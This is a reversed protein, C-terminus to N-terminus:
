KLLKDVTQNFETKWEEFFKGTSPGNFGAHVKVVEHKKNLFITTPFSIFNKLGSLKEAPKDESTSGALLLTYPVKMKKQVKILQKRAEDISLSREFALAIVEIGRKKNENYWPILFKMEDLCNPCWSGYIQVIVPKNLFKANNLSVSKGSLDPFIFKLQEIQTQKYADPLAAKANKQGSVKTISNSLISAELKKDKNLKGKFLYNYVGDFSAAEFTNGSVYGELYRYDGTPTLISGTLLNGVQTFTGVGPSKQDSEDTLELAWTGSLDIAAKNKKGPFREKEGHLGVVPTKVVPNKNHRVFHGIMTKPDELNLELSIEYIQLPISVSKDKLVIDKLPITEEGNLLKGTLLKNKLKFDIIFPINANATQLEFRWRGTNLTESFASFSMFFLGLILAFWTKKMM